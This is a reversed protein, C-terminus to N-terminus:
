YYYLNVIPLSVEDSSRPLPANKVINPKIKNGVGIPGNV